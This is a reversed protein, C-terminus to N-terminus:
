LNTAMLFSPAAYPIDDIINCYSHTTGPPYQFYQRSWKTVVTSYVQFSCLIINFTFPLQFIFNLNFFSPPIANSWPIFFFSHIHTPLSPPSASNSNLPNSIQAKVNLDPHKWMLCMCQPQLGFLSWNWISVNPHQEHGGKEMYVGTRVQIQSSHLSRVLHGGERWGLGVLHRERQTNTNEWTM